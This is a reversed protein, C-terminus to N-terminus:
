QLLQMFELASHVNRTCIRLNKPSYIFGWKLYHSKIEGRIYFLETFYFEVITNINFGPALHDSSAIKVNNM